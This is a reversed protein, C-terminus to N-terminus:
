LFIFGFGVAKETKVGFFQHSGDDRRYVYGFARSDGTDRSIFSIHNLEHVHLVEQICCM